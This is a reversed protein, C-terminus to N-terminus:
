NPKKMITDQLKWSPTKAHSNKVAYGLWRERAVGRRKESLLHSKGTEPQEEKLVFKREPERKEVEEANAQVVDTPMKMRSM